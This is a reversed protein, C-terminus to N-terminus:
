FKGVVALQPAAADRRRSHYIFTADGSYVLRLVHPLFFDGTYQLAEHVAASGCYTDICLLKLGKIRDRRFSLTLHLWFILKLSSM